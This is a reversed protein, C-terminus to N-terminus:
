RGLEGQATQRAQMMVNVFRSTLENVSDKGMGRELLDNYPIPPLFYIDNCRFFRMRGHIYSPIVPVQNRLAIMSLGNEVNKMFNEPKTRTGEPFLGLVDGNKLVENCARIAAIDTAHRSVSIM